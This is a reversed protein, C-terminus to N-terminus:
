NDVFHLIQKCFKIFHFRNKSLVKFTEMDTDSKFSGQLIVWKAQWWVLTYSNAIQSGQMLLIALIIFPMTLFGRGAGLYSAYVLYANILTINGLRSKFHKGKLPVSGTARREKVILRGELRVSGAKSKEMLALKATESVQLKSAEADKRSETEPQVGGFEKDLRAFEGNKLILEKYAGHEAIRGTGDSTM